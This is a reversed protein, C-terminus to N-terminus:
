SEDLDMVEHVDMITYLAPKDGVYQVGATVIFGKNLPNEHSHIMKDKLSSRDSPFYVRLPKDFIEKIFGKDGTQGRERAEGRNLQFWYFLKERAVKHTTGRAAEWIPQGDTERILNVMGTAIETETFEMEAVVQRGDPSREAYRVKKIKLAAGRRGALPKLFAEMNRATSPALEKPREREEGSVYKIIGRIREGLDFLNLVTSVAGGGDGVLSYALLGTYALEYELSGSKMETVILKASGDGGREAELAKFERALGSLSETLANVEFGGEIEYRIVLREASYDSDAV